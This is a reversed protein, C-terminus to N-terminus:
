LFVDWQTNRQLADTDTSTYQFSILQDHIGNECLLCKPMHKNADPPASKITCQWLYFLMEFSANTFQLNTVTQPLAQASTQTQKKVEYEIIHNFILHNFLNITNRQGTFSNKDAANPHVVKQENDNGGFGVHGSLYLSNPNLDTKRSRKRSDDMSGTESWPVYSFM